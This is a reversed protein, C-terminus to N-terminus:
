RPNAVCSQFTLVASANWDLKILDGKANSVRTHEYTFQIVVSDGIMSSEPGRIVRLPLRCILGESGPALAGLQDPGRSQFGALATIKASWETRSQAAHYGWESVLGDEFNCLIEQERDPKPITLISDGVLVPDNGKADPLTPRLFRVRDPRNMMILAELGQITDTTNKLWLDVAIPCGTSDDVVRLELSAQDGPSEIATRATDQASVLAIACPLSLSLLYSMLILFQRM